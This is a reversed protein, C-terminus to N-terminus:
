SARRQEGLAAKANPIREDLEERLAVLSGVLAQRRTEDLSDIKRLLGELRRAASRAKEMADVEEAGEPRPFVIPNFNKKLVAVPAAEDFVAQRLEEMAGEEPALYPSDDDEVSRLAKAFYEVADLRPMPQAVGDRALVQPAHEQVVAYSGTLKTVTARTLLLETQCYDHFDSYGWESYLERRKVHSLGEAMDVWSRKFLRARRVLELRLKDAGQAALESELRELRDASSM